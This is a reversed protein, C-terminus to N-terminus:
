HTGSIARLEGDGFADRIQSHVHWLLGVLFGELHRELNEPHPLCSHVADQGWFTRCGRGYKLVSWLEPNGFHFTSFEPKTPRLKHWPLIWDDEDDGHSFNL